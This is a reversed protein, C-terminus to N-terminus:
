PKGPSYRTPQSWPLSGRSKVAKDYEKALLQATQVCGTRLFDTFHRMWHRHDPFCPCVKGRQVSCWSLSILLISSYFRFSNKTSSVPSSGITPGRTSVSPISLARLSALVINKVSSFMSEHTSFTGTIIFPLCGVEFTKAPGNNSNGIWSAVDDINPVTASVLLFRVNSGRAKMRSIVVELTSGRSENLIHV